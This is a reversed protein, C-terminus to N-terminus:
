SQEHVPVFFGTIAGAGSAADEQGKESSSQAHKQSLLVVPPDAVGEGMTLPEDRGSRLRKSKKGEFNAKSEKNRTKRKTGNQNVVSQVPNQNKEKHIRFRPPVEVFLKSKIQIM